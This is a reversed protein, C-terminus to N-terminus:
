RGGNHVHAEENIAVGGDKMIGSLTKEKTEKVEPM